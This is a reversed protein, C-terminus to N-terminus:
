DNLYVKRFIFIPLSTNCFRATTKMQNRPIQCRNWRIVAHSVRHGYQFSCKWSFVCSGLVPVPFQARQQWFRFFGSISQDLPLFSLSNNPFFFVFGCKCTNCKNIVESICGELQFYLKRVPFDSMAVVTKSILFILSPIVSCNTWPQVAPISYALIWIWMWRVRSGM